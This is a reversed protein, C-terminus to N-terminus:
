NIAKKLDDRSEVVVLTVGTSRLQHDFPNRHSKQIIVESKMGTLDPIQEILKPNNGTLLGALGVQMGAAAGCTVIADYDGPLRLLECIKKGAAVELDAIPVFHEGALAMVAAVEPRLLSGGLYTMTGQGNIVTTLGLEEYANGSSGFGTLKEAPPSSITAPSSLGFARRANWLVGAFMGASGLFTRRNWLNKIPM